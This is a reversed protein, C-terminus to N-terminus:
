RRGQSIWCGEIFGAVHGVYVASYGGEEWGQGVQGDVAFVTGCGVDVVEEVVIVDSVIEIRKEAKQKDIRKVLKVQGEDIVGSRQQAEWSIPRAAINSLLERYFESYIEM